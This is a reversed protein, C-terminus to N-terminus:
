SGLKTPWLHNLLHVALPGCQLITKPLWPQRGLALRAGILLVLFGFPTSFGPLPVPTLFPLGILLLLQGQALPNDLAGAATDPELGLRVLVPGEIKGDRFGGAFRRGSSL